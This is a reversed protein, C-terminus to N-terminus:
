INHYFKCLLERSEKLNRIAPNNNPSPLYVKMATIATDMNATIRLLNQQFEASLEPTNQTLTNEIAIRVFDSVSDYDKTKINAQIQEYLNRSIRSSIHYEKKM